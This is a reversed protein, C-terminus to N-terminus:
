AAPRQAWDLAQELRDDGWFMEGDQTVFAPAGFIGIARAQETERRLQLKIAESGAEALIPGAELGAASLGEAITGPADIQLGDAFQAHMIARSFEARLGMDPIALAVRAALLSRQPFPKPLAFTLGRAAAIREIDRVMYRGKVEYINFPSTSWGQSAFIPGLLFPRWRVAVGHGAALPDIRAATLYSYTSAFDFWFDLTAMM